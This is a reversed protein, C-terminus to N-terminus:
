IQFPVFITMNTCLYIWNAFMHPLLVCFQWENTCICLLSMLFLSPIDMCAFTLFSLCSITYCYQYVVWRMWIRCFMSSSCHGIQHSRQYQHGWQTSSTSFITSAKVRKLFSWQYCQDFSILCHSHWVDTTLSLVPFLKM